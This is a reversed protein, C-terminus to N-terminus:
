RINPTDQTTSWCSQHGSGDYMFDSAAMLAGTAGAGVGTRDRPDAAAPIALETYRKNDIVHQAAAIQLMTQLENRRSELTDIENETFEYCVIRGLLETSQLWIQLLTFTLGASEVKEQWNQRASISIGSCTEVRRETAQFPAQRLRRTHHRQAVTLCLKAWANRINRASSMRALGYGGGGGYYYRYM